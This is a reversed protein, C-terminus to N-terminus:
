IGAMLQISQCWPIIHTEVLQTIERKGDPYTSEIKAIDLIPERDKIKELLMPNSQNRKIDNNYEWYEKKGIMKKVWTKWTSKSVSLPEAFRIITIGPYEKLTIFQKFM